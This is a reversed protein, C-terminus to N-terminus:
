GNDTLDFGLYSKIVNWAQSEDHASQFFLLLSRLRM